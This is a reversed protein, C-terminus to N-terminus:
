WKLTNSRADGIAFYVEIRAAKPTRRQWAFAGDAAVPVASRGQVFGSKTDLRIWPTAMVGVGFGSTAGSVIIARSTRSGSIVISPAVLPRPVVANSPTSWASWGAGTLARVQFTYTSGDSLGGVTCATSSSLCSGSGPSSAVQYTTVPFSGSAVPASWSVSASAAGATAVVGVPPGSPIPPPPTPSPSPGPAVYTFAGVETDDGSPTSVVIDVLGATSAPTTATIQTPSNISFSASTSGFRVATAGSMASGTIVVSEGGVTSGTAPAVGSITPGAGIYTFAGAMTNSMTSAAYANSTVGVPVSGATGAPTTVILTTDDVHTISTAAGSDFTAGVAPTPSAGPSGFGAGTITVTTGGANPGSAPTASLIKPKPSWVAGYAGTAISSASFAADATIAFTDDALSLDSVTGTRTNTTNCSNPGCMFVKDGVAFPPDTIAQVRSTAGVGSSSTWSMVLVARDLQSCSGDSVTSGSTDVINSYWITGSITAWRPLCNGQAGNSVRSNMLKLISSGIWIGGSGDGSTATNSTVTDDNMTLQGKYWGAGGAVLGGGSSASNGTITTGTIQHQFSYGLWIGGGTGSPSTTANQTILSNSILVRRAGYIGGGGNAATNRQIVSNRVDVFANPEGLEAYDSRIAGGVNTATDDQFISDIVTLGTSHVYAGGGMTAQSMSVTVRTLTVQARQLYMAGGNAGSRGRTLTLDSIRVSVGPTANTGQDVYLIRTTDDGSIALTNQGPGIITLPKSISPLQSALTITHLSGPTFVSPDFTITDDDSTAQATTIADRLSGAGSDATSTVVITTGVAQAPEAVTFVLGAVIAAIVLPLASWRQHM